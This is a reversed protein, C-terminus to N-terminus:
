PQGKPGARVARQGETDQVEDDLLLEIVPREHLTIGVAKFRQLRAARFIVGIANGGHRAKIRRQDAFRRM